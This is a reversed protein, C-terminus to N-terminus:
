EGLEALQAQLERIQQEIIERKKNMREHLESRIKALETKCDTVVMEVRALEQEARELLEQQLIELKKLDELSMESSSTTQKKECVQSAPVQSREQITETPKQQDGVEVAISAAETAPLHVPESIITKTGHQAIEELDKRWQDVAVPIPVTRMLKSIDSKMEKRVFHFEPAKQLNVSWPKDRVCMDLILFGADLLTRVFSPSMYPNLGGRFKRDAVQLLLKAHEPHCKIEWNRVATKEDVTITANQVPKTVVVEKQPANTSASRESSKERFDYQEFSPWCLLRRGTPDHRFFIGWGSSPGDTNYQSIKLRVTDVNLGPHSHAIWTELRLRTKDQNNLVGLADQEIENIISLYEKEVYSITRRKIEVCFFEKWEVLFKFARKGEIVNGVESVLRAKVFRDITAAYMEPTCDQLKKSACEFFFQDQDRTIAVRTEVNLAQRALACLTTWVDMEVPTLFLVYKLDTPKQKVVVPESSSVISVVPEKIPDIVLTTNPSAPEKRSGKSEDTISIDVAKSKSVAKETRAKALTKLESLRTRATQPANPKEHKFCAQIVVAARESDVYCKNGERLIVGHDTLFKRLSDMQPYPKYAARDAAEALGSFESFLYYGSSRVTGCRELEDIVRELAPPPRRLIDYNVRHAM